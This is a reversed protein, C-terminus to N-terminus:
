EDGIERDELKVDDDVETFVEKLSYKIQNDDLYVDVPGLHLLIDRFKIFKSKPLAKTM